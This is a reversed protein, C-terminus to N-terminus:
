CIKNQMTKLYPRLDPSSDCRPSPLSLVQFIEISHLKKTNYPSFQPFPSSQACGVTSKRPRDNTLSNRFGFCLTHEVAPSSKWRGTGLSEPTVLGGQTRAYRGTGKIFHEATVLNRSLSMVMEWTGM